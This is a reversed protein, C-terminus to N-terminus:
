KGKKKREKKKINSIAFNLGNVSAHLIYRIFLFISKGPRIILFITFSFDFYSITQGLLYM